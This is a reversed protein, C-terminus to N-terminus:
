KRGLFFHDSGFAKMFHANEQIDCSSFSTCFLIRLFDGEESKMNKICQKSSGYAMSLALANVVGNSTFQLIQLFYSTLKFVVM